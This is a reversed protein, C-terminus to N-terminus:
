TISNFYKFISIIEQKTLIDSDLVVGAFDVEKMTPFRIAKVIQEGLIRRKTDGHAEIGQRECEKTAWLDVAKFLDIEDVSLNDRIIVEKLLSRQITAFEDAKM